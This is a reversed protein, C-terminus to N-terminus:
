KARQMKSLNIELREMFENVNEKTMLIENRDPMVAFIYKVYEPILHLLLSNDPITSATNISKAADREITPM